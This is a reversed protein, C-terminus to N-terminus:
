RRLRCGPEDTSRRAPRPRCCMPPACGRSAGATLATLDLSFIRVNLTDPVDGRAIRQALGEVIATKGVGPEGILVPNNKTRRQLIQTARRVESDRGIVPDLKGEEAMKTLDTAYKSLAEYNAEQFKSTIKKGGRMEEIVRELQKTTMAQSDLVKACDSSEHLSLIIHDVAILADGFKNRIQEAKNLMAQFDQTPAPRQPAPTQVPLKSMKEALQRHVQSPVAGLKQAVRAFMSNPDAILAVAVHVPTLMGHSREKALNLSDELAKEAMQTWEVGSATMNYKNNNQFNFKKKSISSVLSKFYLFFLFLM